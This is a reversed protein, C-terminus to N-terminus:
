FTNQTKQVHKLEPFILSPLNKSKSAHIKELLEICLVNDLRHM